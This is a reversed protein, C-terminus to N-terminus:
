ELPGSALEAAAFLAPDAAALSGVESPVHAGLVVPGPVVPGSGPEVPSLYVLVVLCLFQQVVLCLVQQVVRSLGPLEALFLPQRLAAPVPHPKVSLTVSVPESPVLSEAVDVVPETM